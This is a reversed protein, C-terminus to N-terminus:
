DFLIGMVNEEDHSMISIVSLSRIRHRRSDEEMFMFRENYETEIENDSYKKIMFIDSDLRDLFGDAEKAPDDRKNRNLYLSIIDAMTYGKDQLISSISDASAVLDYNERRNYGFDHHDDEDDSDIDSDDDESDSDSDGISEEDSKEIVTTRCMPCTGNRGLALVLCKLCFEHGCATTCNNTKGITEMCICCEKDMIEMAIDCNLANM